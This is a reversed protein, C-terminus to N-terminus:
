LDENTVDHLFSDEVKPLYLVVFNVKSTPRVSELKIMEKLAGPVVVILM